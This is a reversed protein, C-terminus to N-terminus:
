CPRNTTPGAFMRWNCDFERAKEVMGNLMTPQPVLLLIKSQLALNLARQFAYMKTFENTGARRAYKSWEQFWERFEWSEQITSHMKSIAELQTQPLVFQKDFNSKFIAWTRYDAPNQVLTHTIHDSAWEGAHTGLCFHILATSVQTAEDAFSNTNMTYYNDLSNWFAIAKDLSGDYPDPM